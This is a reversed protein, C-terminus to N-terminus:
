SIGKKWDDIIRMNTLSEENTMLTNFLNINKDLSKKIFLDIQSAYVSLESSSFKKYYSNKCHIELFSKKEPLWPSSLIIKGKSGHVICTNEMQKRISTNISAKLHDSFILDAYAVEDVGTECISGRINELKFNSINKIGLTKAILLAFSTTYCGVDLIAGGGLDKNFIRSKPNIKKVFYGFSSEVKSVEGIEGNKIIQCLNKTQPHARYAFAELFFIDLDKIIKFVTKSEQSNLTMPKECLIKKNARASDVILKAHSNNLTSIYIADIENIKLLDEYNNFYCDENIKFKEIIEKSKKTSLSAVAIIKTDKLEKIADAFRNAM